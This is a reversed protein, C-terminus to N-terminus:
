PQALRWTLRAQIGVQPITFGQRSTQLFVVLNLQPHALALTQEMLQIQAIAQRTWGYTFGIGLSLGLM